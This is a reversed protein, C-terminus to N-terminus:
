GACFGNNVIRDVIEETCSNIVSSAPIQSDSATVPWKSDFWSDFEDTVMGSYAFFGSALQRAEDRTLPEVKHSIYFRRKLASDMATERNTTGIIITGNNIRDLEQMLSITIRSIEGVEQGSGREMGIADIEDFCLLMKHQRIFDFIRSLNKQTEGLHSSVLASFRVYAFPYDLKHAIWRAFETKGCGSPGYLLLSPFFRIGVANLREQANSLNLLKTAVDADGDRLLFRKEPYSTVDEVVLIERLNYPLEVLQKQAELKVLLAECFKQDKATRNNAAITSAYMQAKKIDGDVVASLLFRVLNTM